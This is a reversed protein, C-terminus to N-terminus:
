AGRGQRNARVRVNAAFPTFVSLVGHLPPPPSFGLFALVVEGVKTEMGKRTRM